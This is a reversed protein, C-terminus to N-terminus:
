YTLIVVSLYFSLECLLFTAGCCDGTYGQIKKKMYQTLFFFVVIPIILAYWLDFDLVIFAPIIGIVFSTLLQKFDIKSYIVKAKSEEEKRAYPLRNILQSAVFKSWTDGAFIVLCATEIPLSYIASFFLAFYLLVGLLGYSGIFSDKMIALIREKSTGGGFGDFFDILGDEHFAGTVLVRSCIALLISITIPFVQSAGWLVLATIGGTLWGVLPWFNIVKTYYKKPLDKIRWFPLRTFFIFSALIQNAVEKM